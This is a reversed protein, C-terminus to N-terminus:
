STAARIQCNKGLSAPTLLALEDILTVRFSGPARTRQGALRGAAGFAALAATAAKVPSDKIALFAGVLASAGCGTATVTAMLPHGSDIAWVAEGDTVFDIAGTMAIISGSTRALAKASDIAMASEDCSDVGKQRADRIGALALIESANGRIVSPQLELLEMAATTRFHTVGAAVPDLVWPIKRDRAVRAALKMSALWDRSLTGINIVLSSAIETFAEVEAEAHVMAPSAGIALLVNASIDMAVYNTINHVLPRRQRVRSLLKAAEEVTM